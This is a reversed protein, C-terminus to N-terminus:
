SQWWEINTCQSIQYKVPHYNALPTPMNTFAGVHVQNIILNYRYISLYIEIMRKIPSTDDNEVTKAFLSEILKFSWRRRSLRTTYHQSRTRSTGSGIGLWPGRWVLSTIFITGTTGKNLVSCEFPSISAREWSNLYSFLRLPYFRPYFKRRLRLDNAWYQNLKM